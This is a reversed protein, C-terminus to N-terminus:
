LDAAGALQRLDGGATRDGTVGTLYGGLWVLLGSFVFATAFYLAVYVAVHIGIRLRIKRPRPAVAVGDIYRVCGYPGGPM